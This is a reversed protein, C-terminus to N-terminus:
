PSPPPGSEWAQVGEGGGVRGSRGQASAAPSSSARSQLKSGVAHDGPRGADALHAQSCTHKANAPEQLFTSYVGLVLSCGVGVPNQVSELRFELVRPFPPPSGARSPIFTWYFKHESFNIVSGIFPLSKKKKRSPYPFVLM